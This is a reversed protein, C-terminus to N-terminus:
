WGLLYFTEVIENPHWEALEVVDNSLSDWWDPDWFIVECAWALDKWSTGGLLHKTDEVLYNWSEAPSEPLFVMHASWALEDIQKRFSGGPITERGSCGSLVLAGVLLAAASVGVGSSTTGSPPTDSPSVGGGHSGVMVRRIRARWAKARLPFVFAQACNVLLEVLLSAFLRPGVFWFGLLRPGQSASRAPVSPKGTCDSNDPKPGPM